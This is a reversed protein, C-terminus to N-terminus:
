GRKEHSENTNIPTLMSNPDSNYGASKIVGMM